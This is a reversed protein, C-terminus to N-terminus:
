GAVKLLSIAKKVQAKRTQKIQRRTRKMRRDRRRQLELLMATPESTWDISDYAPIEQERVYIGPQDERALKWGRSELVDRQFKSM